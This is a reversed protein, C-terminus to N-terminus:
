QPVKGFAMEYRLATLEASARDMERLRELRDEHSTWPKGVIQGIEYLERRMQANDRELMALHAKLNFDMNDRLYDQAADMVHGYFDDAAKRILPALINPEIREVAESIRSPDFGSPALRSAAQNVLAQDGVAVRGDKIDM